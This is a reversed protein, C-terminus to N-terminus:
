YNIESSRTTIATAETGAGRRGARGPDGQFNRLSSTDTMPLFAQIEDVFEQFPTTLDIDISAPNVTTDYAADYPPSIVGDGVYKYFNSVCNRFNSHM